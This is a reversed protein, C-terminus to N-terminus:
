LNLGAVEKRRLGVDYLLRLIAKDRKGAEDNGALALMKKFNDHGPGATDRYTKSPVNAVDLEWSVLGCRKAEIVFSRLASLYSNVSSPKFGRAVMDVRYAKAIANATGRDLKILHCIAAPAEGLDAEDTTVGGMKVAFTSFDRFAGRYVRLTGPKKDGLVLSAVFGADVAPREPSMLALQNEM